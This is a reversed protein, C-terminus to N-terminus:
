KMDEERIKKIIKKVDEVSAQKHTLDEYTLIRRIVEVYDKPIAHSFICGIIDDDEIRNGYLNQAYEFKTLCDNIYMSYYDKSVPPELDTCNGNYQNENSFVPVVGHRTKFKMLVTGLDTKDGIQLEEM